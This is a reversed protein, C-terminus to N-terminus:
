RFRSGTRPEYNVQGRARGGPRAGKLILVLLVFLLLPCRTSTANVFSLTPSVSAETQFMAPESRGANLGDTM